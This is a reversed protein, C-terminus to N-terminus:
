LHWTSLFVWDGVKWEKPRKTKDVQTKTREQAKVLNIKSDDLAEKMRVIAEQVVQNSTSRPSVLLDRSLGLDEGANLYFPTYGTSVNIANNAAFEAVSLRKSWTHPHLKVYPWLFNELM